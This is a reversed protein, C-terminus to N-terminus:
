QSNRSSSIPSSIAHSCRGREDQFDRHAYCCIWKNRVSKLVDFRYGGGKDRWECDSCASHCCAGVAPDLYLVSDAMRGFLKAVEATSIKESVSACTPANRTSVQSFRLMCPHLNKMASGADLSMVVLLIGRSSVM